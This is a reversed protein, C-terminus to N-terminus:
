ASRLHVADGAAVTRVDGEVTEVVLHGEPSVDVATGEFTDGALEVRVARGLTASRRRYEVLLREDGGPRDLSGYWRELAVLIRELLAARDVEHGTLHNLATASFGLEGPLETPWNVNLGMGVVLAALEGGALISEALIGGLKADDVVLDNPWKLLPAVADVQRCADSAALGVAITVLHARGV